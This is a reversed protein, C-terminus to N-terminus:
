LKSTVRTDKHNNMGQDKQLLPIGKGGQDKQLLPIERGGLNKPKYPMGASGEIDHEMDTTDGM